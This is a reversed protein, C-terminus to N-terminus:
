DFKRAWTSRCFIHPTFERSGDFGGKISEEKIVEKLKDLLVGNKTRESINKCVQTRRDDDVSLWFYKYKHEPDVKDYSWERVSNQLAQIETRVIVEARIIDIGKEKSVRTIMQQPSYGKTLARVLYDKIRDSITKSIGDFTKEFLSDSIFNSMDKLGETQKEINMSIKEEKLTDNLVKEMYKHMRRRRGHIPNFVGPTTSSVTGDEKELYEESPPYGNLPTVYGEIMIEIFNIIEDAGSGTIIINLSDDCAYRESTPTTNESMINSGTYAQNMVNWNRPYFLTRDTGTVNLIEEKDSTLIKINIEEGCNKGYSILVKEIRGMISDTVLKLEKEKGLSIEGISIRVFETM